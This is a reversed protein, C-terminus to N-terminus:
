PRSDLHTRSSSSTLQTRGEEGEEVEVTQRARLSFFPSHYKQQRCAERPTTRTQKEERRDGRERHHWDKAYEERDLILEIQALEAGKSDGAKQTHM